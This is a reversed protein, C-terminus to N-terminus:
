SEASATVGKSSLVWWEKKGDITLWEPDFTGLCILTVYSGKNGDFTLTNNVGDGFTHLTSSGLSKIKITSPAGAMDIFDFRTNQLTNPNGLRSWIHSYAPDDPRVGTVTQDSWNLYFVIDNAEADEPLIVASKPAYATESDWILPNGSGDVMIWENMPIGHDGSTSWAPLIEINSQMDIRYTTGPTGVPCNGSAVINSFPLIIPGSFGRISYLPWNGITQPEQPNTVVVEPPTSGEDVTDVIIGDPKILNGSVDIGGLINGDRDKWRIIADTPGLGECKLDLAARGFIKDVVAM